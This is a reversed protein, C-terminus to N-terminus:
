YDHNLDMEDNINADINNIMKKMSNLLQRSNQCKNNEDFKYDGQYTLNPNNINNVSSNINDDNMLSYNNKLIMSYNNNGQQRMLTVDNMNREISLAYDKLGILTNILNKVRTNLENNNLTLIQIKKEYKSKILDLEIRLNNNLVNLQAMAASYDREKMKYANALDNYKKDAEKCEEFHIQDDSLYQNIDNHLQNIEDKHNENDSILMNKEKELMELKNHLMDIEQQSSNQFEAFDIQKDNLQKLLLEKEQLLSNITNERTNIEAESQKIVNDADNLALNLDNIQQDRDELAKNLHNNEFKLKDITNKSNLIESKNSLIDNNINSKLDNIVKSLKEIEKDKNKLKIAYDNDIIKKNSIYDDSKRKLIDNQNKLNKIENKLDNIEEEYTRMNTKNLKEQNNLKIRYLEEKKNYEDKILKFRNEYENIKLNLDSNNEMINPLSSLKSELEQIKLKLSNNTKEFMEFKSKSAEFLNQYDAITQNKNNIIKKLQINESKSQNLENELESYNKLLSNYEIVLSDHNSLKRNQDETNKEYVQITSKLQNIINEQSRIIDHLNNGSYSPSNFHGEEM